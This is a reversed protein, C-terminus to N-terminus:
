PFPINSHLQRAADSYADAQSWQALERLPVEPCALHAMRLAYLVGYDFYDSARTVVKAGFWDSNVFEEQTIWTGDRRHALLADYEVQIAAAREEAERWRAESDMLEKAVAERRLNAEEQLLASKRREEKLVGALVQHDIRVTGLELEKATLESERTALEVQKQELDRQLQAITALEGRARELEAVASNREVVHVMTEQFRGQLAIM